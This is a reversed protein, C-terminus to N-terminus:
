KTKIAINLLIKYTLCYKLLAVMSQSSSCTSARLQLNLLCPDSQNLSPEDLFELGIGEQITPDPPIVKIFADADGVAPLYDPIFPQLKHEIKTKQPYYRRLPTCLARKFFSINWLIGNIYKCQSTSSSTKSTKLCSCPTM